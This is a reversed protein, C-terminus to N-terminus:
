LSETRVPRVMKLNGQDHRFFGKTGRSPPLPPPPPFLCACPCPLDSKLLLNQRHLLLLLVSSTVVWDDGETSVRNYDKEWSRM